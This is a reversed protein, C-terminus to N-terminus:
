PTIILEKYKGATGTKNNIGNLREASRIRCDAFITRNSACDNLTVLWKGKLRNLRDRLRQIDTSTWAPYMTDSCETYPPDIFFFSGVRDYLDLCKQWDLEEVCVKDLRANLARISEMRAARSGLAAGGSVASRGFSNLDTGGFCNKNRYFWRAARQIDTLGPQDRFDYFERRSNLVFELETLLVDGHERVCRFFNILDHNADNLVELDSRKKALFVALGGCFPECYCKHDPILPLIKDLLRSKGGPWSVAPKIRYNAAQNM